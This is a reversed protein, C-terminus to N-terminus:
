CKLETRRESDTEYGHKDQSWTEGRIMNTQLMGNRGKSGKVERRKTPLMGNRGKSGKVEGKASLFCRVVNPLASSTPYSLCLLLCTVRMSDGAVAFAVNREEAAAVMGNKAIRRARALLCGPWRAPTRARPNVLGMATGGDGHGVGARISPGMRAV